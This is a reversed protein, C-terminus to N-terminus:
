TNRYKGWGVKCRGANILGDQNQDFGDFTKEGLAQFEKLTLKQDKSKDLIGYRVHVQKLSM